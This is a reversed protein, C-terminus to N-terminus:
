NHWGRGVGDSEVWQTARTVAPPAAFPATLPTGAHLEQRVANISAREPAQLIRESETREQDRSVTLIASDPQSHMLADSLYDLAQNSFRSAVNISYVTYGYRTEAGATGGLATIEKLIAGRERRSTKELLCRSLVESVGRQGPPDDRAGARVWAQISVVPRTSVQRVIVTMKNPLTRVLHPAAAAPVAGLLLCFVLAFSPASYSSM